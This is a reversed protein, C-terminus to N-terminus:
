RPRAIGAKFNIKVPTIDGFFEKIAQHSHRAFRKVGIIKAPKPTFYEAKFFLDFKRSQSSKEKFWPSLNVFRDFKDQQLAPRCVYM